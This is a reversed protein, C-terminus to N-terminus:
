GSTTDLTVHDAGGVDKIKFAVVKDATTQLILAGSVVPDALLDSHTSITVNGNANSLLVGSKGDSGCKIEFDHAADTPKLINKEGSESVVIDTLVTSAAVAAVDVGDVTGTLTIDGTVDVNGSAYVDRFRITDSGLDTVDNTGPRVFDTELVMGGPALSSFSGNNNIDIWGSGSQNGIRLNNPALSTISSESVGGVLIPGFTTLNGTSTANNFTPSDITGNITITDPTTSTDIVLVDGGTGKCVVFAKSDNSTDGLDNIVKDAELTVASPQGEGGGFHPDCNVAATNTASAGTVLRLRLDSDAPRVFTDTVGAGVEIDTLANSAGLAAVDVGDVTGTLTINGTVDLNGTQSTDGIVEADDEIRCRKRIIIEDFDGSRKWGRGNM